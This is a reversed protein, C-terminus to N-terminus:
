LAATLIRARARRQQQPEPLHGGCRASLGLLVSFLALMQTAAFLAVVTGLCILGVITVFLATEDRDFKKLAHAAPMLVTGLVAMFAVLGILGLEIAIVCYANDVFNPHGLVDAAVMQATLLGWGFLPRQQLSLGAAKLTEIRAANSASLEVLPDKTAQLGSPWTAPSQSHDTALIHALGPSLVVPGLALSLALSVVPVALAAQRRLLLYLLALGPLALLSVRSVTAMATLVLITFAAVWRRSRIRPLAIVSTAALWIGFYLPADFSGQQRVIGLRVPETQTVADPSIALALITEYRLGVAAAALTSVGVIATSTVLVAAAARRLAISTATTYTLLFVVAGEMVWAMWRNIGDPNIGALTSAAASLLLFAWPLLLRRPPLSANGLSATRLLAVVLWGILVARAPSIVGVGLEIGLNSPMAVAAVLYGLFLWEQLSPRWARPWAHEAMLPAPQVAQRPTGPLATGDHGPEGARTGQTSLRVMTRLM